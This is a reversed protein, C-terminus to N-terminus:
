SRASPRRRAILRSVSEVVGEGFRTVNAPVLAMRGVESFCRATEVPGLKARVIAALFGSLRELRVLALGTTRKTHLYSSLDHM